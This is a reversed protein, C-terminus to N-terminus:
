IGAIWDQHSFKVVTESNLIKVIKENYVTFKRKRCLTTSNRTIGKEYSQNFMALDAPDGYMIFSKLLIEYFSDVPVERLFINKKLNIFFATLFKM